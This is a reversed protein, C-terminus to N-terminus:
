SRFAKAITNIATRIRSKVTGLPAGTEDAIEAQTMGDFFALEVAKRQEDPLESVVRRVRQLIVSWEATDGFNCGGQAANGNWEVEPSLKRMRDLARNRAIVVLWPAVAGRKSDFAGPNRWLQLFVDQLVDEAASTDRLVRLATGYVVGAFRDYLMAFAAEDREIIRVVLSADDLEIPELSDRKPSGRNM